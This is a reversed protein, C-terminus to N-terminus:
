LPKENTENKTYVTSPRYVTESKNISIYKPSKIMAAKEKIDKPSIATTITPKM